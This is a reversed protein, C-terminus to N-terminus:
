GGFFLLRGRGWDLRGGGGKHDVGSDDGYVGERDQHNGELGDQDFFM